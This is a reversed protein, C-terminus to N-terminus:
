PRAGEPGAGVLTSAAAKQMALNFSPTLRSSPPLLVNTTGGGLDLRSSFPILWGLKM